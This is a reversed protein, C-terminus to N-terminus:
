DVRKVKKIVDDERNFDTFNDHFYVKVTEGKTYDTDEVSWLYGVPDIFVTETDNVEYVKCIQSYNHQYTDAFVPVIVFVFLMIITYFITKKM